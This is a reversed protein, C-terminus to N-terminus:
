GGLTHLVIPMNLVILMNMIRHVYNEVDRPMDFNLV